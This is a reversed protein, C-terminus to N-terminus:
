VNNIKSYLYVDASCEDTSHKRQLPMQETVLLSSDILSVRISCEREHICLRAHLSSSSRRPGIQNKGLYGSRISKETETQIM